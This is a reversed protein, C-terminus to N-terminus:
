RGVPTRMCRRMWMGKRKSAADKDPIRESTVLQGSKEAHLLLDLPIRELHVVRGKRRLEYAGRDLEFDAFRM